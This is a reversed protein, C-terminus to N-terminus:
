ASPGRRTVADSIEPDQSIAALKLAQEADAHDRWYAALGALAALMEPTKAALVRRRLLTTRSVARNILFRMIDPSDHSALARIGLARLEPSLELDDARAVLIAAADASCSTMVSGIALRVIREDRDALAV